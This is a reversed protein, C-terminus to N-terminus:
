RTSTAARTPPERQPPKKGVTLPIELSGVKKSVSDLIGVRLTFKGPPLDLQQNFQFPTAIFMRYQENTLPLMRTRSVSTVMKGDSDFAAVDFKVAGNHNGDGDDAFAIQKQPLMFFIAYRTLQWPMKKLKPDLFGMVPPDGPNELKPIPEVRVDFFLQIVPPATPSVADALTDNAPVTPHIGRKARDPVTKPVSAIQVPDEANYGKRYLMQLNPRDVKIGIKHYRGDYPVGPPIYSLTYYSAGADVAKAMLEDLFNNGYLAVGGTAQAVVEMASHGLETIGAGRPGTAAVGNPDLPYVTVQADALLDYTKHLNTEFWPCLPGVTYPPPFVLSPIGGNIWILNKRGKIGSLYNAIEKFQDIVAHNRAISDECHDNAWSEFPEVITNVVKLLRASDTTPEQLVTLRAGMALLAVQTGPAMNNIFKAAALRVQGIDGGYIDDLLLINLPGAVAQYNSYTNPPLKLQEPSTNSQDVEQFSHISQPKGDQDVTFDAQTLGHVTKGNADTVTVDVVTERSYVKITPAGSQQLTPKAARTGSDKYAQAPAHAAFVALLAALNLTALTTTRVQAFRIPNM